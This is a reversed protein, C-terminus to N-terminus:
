LTEFRRDILFNVNVKENNINDLGIEWVNPKLRLSTWLPICLDNKIKSFESNLSFDTSHEKSDLFSASWISDILYKIHAQLM